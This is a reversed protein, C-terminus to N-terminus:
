PPLSRQRSLPFLLGALRNGGLRLRVHALVCRRVGGGVVRGVAGLVRRSPRDCPPHGVRARVAQRGKGEM